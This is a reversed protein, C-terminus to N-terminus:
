KFVDFTREEFSGNARKAETVNSNGQQDEEVTVEKFNICKYHPGFDKKLAICIQCRKEQHRTPRSTPTFSSGPGDALLKRKRAIRAQRQQELLEIQFTFLYGM